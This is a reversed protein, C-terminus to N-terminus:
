SRCRRDQVDLRLVRGLFSGFGASIQATPGERGGSGPPTYGAIGGQFLTQCLAIANYFVIAGAGAVVGILIGLVWDQGPFTPLPLLDFSRLGPIGHFYTGGWKRLNDM